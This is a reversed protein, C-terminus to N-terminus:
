VEENPRLPRIIISTIELGEADLTAIDAMERMVVDFTGKRVLISTGGMTNVYSLILKYTM